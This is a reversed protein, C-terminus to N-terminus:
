RLMTKVIYQATMRAALDQGRDNWHNNCSKFFLSSPDNDSFTDFLNVNSIHNVDCSAAVFDTLNRQDYGPFERLLTFNLKRGDGFDLNETLDVVSPQILVLFDMEKSKALAHAKGLVGALLAIKTQAAESEPFIAVDLDYHDCLASMRRPNQDAYVAFENKCLGALSDTLSEDDARGVMVDLNEIGFIERLGHSIRLSGIAGTRDKGPEFSEKQVIKFGTEVLEGSPALEFIRNRLVDGFDNDAFVQIVVLDPRYIDAEEKFRILSQDPGFGIVGANIVEVDQNLEDALYSELRKAYTNELKSFRALINSDGYVIVRYGPNNKLPAGRFSDGNTRWSIVEGGNEKRRPFEKQINPKLAVIYREHFEFGLSRDPELLRLVGETVALLSVCIAAVIFGYQFKRILDM